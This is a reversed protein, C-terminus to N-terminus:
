KQCENVNVFTEKDSTNLIGYLTRHTYCSELKAIIGKELLQLYSRTTNKALCEVQITPHIFGLDQTNWPVDDFLLLPHFAINKCKLYWGIERVFFNNFLGVLLEKVVWIKKNSRGSKPLNDVNKANLAQPSLSWYILM